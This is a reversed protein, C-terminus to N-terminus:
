DPAGGSDGACAGLACQQVGAVMLAQKSSGFLCVVSLVASWHLSMNCPVALCLYACLLKLERSLSLIPVCIYIYIYIHAFACVTAPGLWSTVDLDPVALVKSPSTPQAPGETLLQKLVNRLAKWIQKRLALGPSAHLLKTLASVVTSPVSRAGMRSLAEASLKEQLLKGAGPGGEALSMLLTQWSSDATGSVQLLLVTSRFNGAYAANAICRGM